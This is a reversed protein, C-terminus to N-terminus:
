VIEKRGVFIADDRNCERMANRIFAEATGLGIHGGVIFQLRRLSSFLRKGMLSSVTAWDLVQLEEDYRVWFHFALNNM